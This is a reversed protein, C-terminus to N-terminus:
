GVNQLTKDFIIDEVSVGFLAALAYAARVPMKEADKEWKAYTNVHVGCAKAASEQSIERIRRWEKISLKM